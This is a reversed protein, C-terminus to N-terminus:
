ASGGRPRLAWHLGWSMALGILMVMGGGANLGGQAEAGLDLMPGLSIIMGGAVLGYLVAALRSWPRLQWAGVTGAVAVGTCAGQLVILLLPDDSWGGLAAVVQVGANLALLGLFVAIARATKPSRM